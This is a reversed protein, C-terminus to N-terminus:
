LGLRKRWKSITSADLGLVQEAISLSGFRELIDEIPLRLVGELLLMQRTKLTGNRAIATSEYPAEDALSTSASTAYVEAPAPPEATVEEERHRRRLLERRAAQRTLEAM